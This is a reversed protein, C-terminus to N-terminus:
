AVGFKLAGIIIASVSCWTSIRAGWFYFVSSASIAEPTAVWPLLFRANLTSVTSSAGLIPHGKRMLASTAAENGRISWRLLAAFIIALLVFAISASVYVEIALANM